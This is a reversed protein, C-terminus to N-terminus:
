ASVRPRDVGAEPREAGAAASSTGAEAHWAALLAVVMWLYREFALHLFLGNVGIVLLVGLCAVTFARTSRDSQRRRLALLHATLSALLGILLLLGVIGLEAAFHLYLNHAERPGDHITYGLPRAYRQYVHPFRDPGVGLVPHDAFAMAAAVMESYRGTVAADPQDEAGVAGGSLQRLATLGAIRQAYDPASALLLAAGLGLVILVRRPLLGTVALVVATVAVVVAAGRSYSVVVGAVLFPAALRGVWAELRSAPALAFATAFPLAAILTFAFFNPEGIPGAARMHPLLESPGDWTRWDTAGLIEGEVQSAMGFFGHADTGSVLAHILALGGVVGASGVVVLAAARVAERSRLVNIILLYLAVGNTAYGVVAGVTAGPDASALASVVHIVLLGLIWPGAVGLRLARRRVVVHYALPGLLLMPVVAAAVLPVGYLRVAVGALNSYLVGLVLLTAVDPRRLSLMAFGGAVVAAVAVVPLAATAAGAAAAVALMAIVM